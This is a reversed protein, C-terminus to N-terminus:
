DVSTDELSFNSPPPPVYMAFGDAHEAVPGAYRAGAAAYIRAWETANFKPTTFMPIFDKYGFNAGYTKVHHDRVAGPQYMNRSYWENSFAPVSYPGFHAYIGFKADQFWKPTSHQQVSCWDASYTKGAPPPPCEDLYNHNSALTSVLLAFIATAM